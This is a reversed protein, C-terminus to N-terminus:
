KGSRGKKPPRGRPLPPPEEAPQSDSEVGGVLEVVSVGLARARQHVLYLTPM